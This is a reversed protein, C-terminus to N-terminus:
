RLCDGAPCRTSRHHMRYRTSTCSRRAPHLIWLFAPPGDDRAEPCKDAAEPIDRRMWATQGQEMTRIRCNSVTIDTPRLGPVGTISSSFIAGTADVGEILVNRLFTGEKKKREGLRVFIPARVNQMRINSVVIGDISGGDVAEICIGGSSRTYLPSDEDAYLVSNSFV